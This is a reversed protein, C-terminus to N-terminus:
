SADPRADPTALRAALTLAVLTLAPMEWDWDLGAHIAFVALAGIAGAAEPSRRAMSVIGAIFAVLALLGVLGLEAATEIYLSHADRVTEDITRERLWVTRFSGSGGGQLPSDAFENVAVRWYEYRNSQASVLRSPDAGQAPGSGTREVRTVAIGTVALALVLAGVAARRLPPLLPAADAPSPAPPTPAADAPSPARPTPAADAPSPARPTPAADAPSPAPPTPAADAPSPARPTPAADAPSPAPPTPAADAPSPAPPTPAAEGPSPAPGTPAADRSPGPTAPPALWWAAAALVALAAIMVAGQTASGGPAEVASLPITALAALIAAGGAVAARRLQGVTPTLAVLVALGAATAGLAGRSFTLYCALGLIPSTALAARSPVWAALVLGMGTLAGMANWYTLPWALRDDASPLADLSFVGPLLRESLGYLAAAVIGALLVPEVLRRVEPPQLVAVAAIFAFLYLLLRQFDDSAGGAIPAWLISLGTWATLAALGGAALWASRPVPREDRVAVVVVLACAVVGAVLRPVDFYGGKAFALVAPGLLVPAALVLDFRRM